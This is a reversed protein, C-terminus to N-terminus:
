KQLKNRIQGTGISRHRAQAILDREGGSSVVRPSSLSSLPLPVSCAPIFSSPEVFIHSLSALSVADVPQMIAAQSTSMKVDLPELNVLDPKRGRILSPKAGRTFAAVPPCTTQVREKGDKNGRELGSVALRPSFM